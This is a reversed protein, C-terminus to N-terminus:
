NFHLTCIRHCSPTACRANEANGANEANDLSEDRCNKSAM